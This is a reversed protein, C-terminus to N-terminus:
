FILAIGAGAYLEMWMFEFKDSDTNKGYVKHMTWGGELFLGIADTVNFQLGLLSILNWGFDGWKQRKGVLKEQNVGLEYLDDRRPDKRNIYTTLGAGGGFYLDLIRRGKSKIPVQFRLMPDLDLSLDGGLGKYTFSAHVGLGVYPAFLHTLGLAISMKTDTAKYNTAKNDIGSIESSTLKSPGFMGFTAKLTAYNKMGEVEAYELVANISIKEGKQPFVVEKYESYGDRRVYITSRKVPIDVDTLPTFGISSEDLFVEAKGENVTVDLKAIAYLKVTVVNQKNGEVFITETDCTYDPAKPWM